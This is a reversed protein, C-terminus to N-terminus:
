GVHKGAALADMAMPYHWEWPTAIIVADIDKRDLLKKYAHKDGIIVEPFKKEAKTFFALTDDIMRQQIDCIAVIEVDDRRLALDVHDQGRLGVGIFGLRVKKEEKIEAAFANPLVMLGAATITTNRIFDKRSIM